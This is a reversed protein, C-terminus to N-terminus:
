NYWEGDGNVIAIIEDPTLLKGDASASGYLADEIAKLKAPELGTSEIVVHATPKCGEAQVNIPTSSFEYSMENGSPSDNM